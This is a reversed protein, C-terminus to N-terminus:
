KKRRIGSIRIYICQCFCIHIIDFRNDTWASKSPTLCPIDTCTHLNQSILIVASYRIIKVLQQLKGSYASFTRIQDHAIHKPLRGNYCVCMTDTQHVTHPQHVVNFLRFFYLHRKPFQDRRFFATIEAVSQHIVSPLHTRCSRLRITVSATQIIDAPANTYFLFM